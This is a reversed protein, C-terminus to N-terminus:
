RAELSRLTEHTFVSIVNVNKVNVIVIPTWEQNAMRSLLTPKLEGYAGM